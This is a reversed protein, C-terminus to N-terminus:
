LKYYILSISIAIGIAVGIPLLFKSIWDQTGQAEEESGTEDEGGNRGDGPGSLTTINNNEEIVTANQIELWDEGEYVYLVNNVIRIDSSDQVFITVNRFLNQQLTVNNSDSIYVECNEATNNKMTLGNCDFLLIGSNLFINDFVYVETIESSDEPEV